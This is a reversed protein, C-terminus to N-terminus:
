ALNSIFPQWKYKRTKMLFLSHAFWVSSGRELRGALAHKLKDEEGVAFPSFFSASSFPHIRAKRNHRCSYSHFMDSCSLIKTLAKIGLHSCQTNPCSSNNRGLSGAGARLPDRRRQLPTETPWPAASSGCNIVLCTWTAGQQNWRGWRTVLPVPGENTDTQLEHIDGESKWYVCSNWNRWTFVQHQTAWRLSAAHPVIFFNAPTVQLPLHSPLLTQTRLERSRRWQQLSVM